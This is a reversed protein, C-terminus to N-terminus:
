KLFLCTLYKVMYSHQLIQLRRIDTISRPVCWFYSPSISLSFISLHIFIYYLLNIIFHQFIALSIYTFNLFKFCKQLTKLVNRFIQFIKMIPHFIPALPFFCYFSLLDVLFSFYIIISKLKLCTITALICIGTSCFLHRSVSELYLYFNTYSFTFEWIM